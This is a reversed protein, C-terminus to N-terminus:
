NQYLLVFVLLHVLFTTFFNVVPSDRDSKVSSCSHGHKRLALFILFTFPLCQRLFFPLIDHLNQSISPLCHLNALKWSGLIAALWLDRSVLYVLNPAKIQLVLYFLPVEVRREVCCAIQLFFKFVPHYLWEAMCSRYFTLFALFINQYLTACQLQM